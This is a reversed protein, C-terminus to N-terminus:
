LRSSPAAKPIPCLIECTPIKLGGSSERLISPSYKTPALVRGPVPTGSTVM